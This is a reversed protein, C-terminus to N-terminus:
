RLLPNLNIPLFTCPLPNTSSAPLVWGLGPFYTEGPGAAHLFLSIFPRWSLSVKPLFGFGGRVAMQRQKRNRSACMAVVCLCKAGEGSTEQEAEAPGWPFRQRLSSVLTLGLRGQGEPPPPPPATVSGWASGQLYWQLCQSRPDRRQQFPLPPALGRYRHLSGRTSLCLGWFM